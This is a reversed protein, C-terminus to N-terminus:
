PRGLKIQRANESYNCHGGHSIWRWLLERGLFDEEFVDEEKIAKKDM